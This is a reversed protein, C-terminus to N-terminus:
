VADVGEERIITVGYVSFVKLFMMGAHPVHELVILTDGKNFGKGPAGFIGSANYVCRAWTASKVKVLDGIQTSHKSM